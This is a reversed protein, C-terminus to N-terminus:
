QLISIDREMAEDSMKEMAKEMPRIIEKSNSALRFYSCFRYFVSLQDRTMNKIEKKLYKFDDNFDEYDKTRIMSALRSVLATDTTKLTSKKKTAM